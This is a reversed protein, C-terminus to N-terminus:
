PQDVEVRAFSNVGCEVICVLVVDVCKCQSGVVTCVEVGVPCCCIWKSHVWLGLFVGVLRCFGQQWRPDSQTVTRTYGTVVVSVKPIIRSFCQWYSFVISVRRFCIGDLLETQMPVERHCCIGDLLETQLPVERHCCIGVLGRCWVVFISSLSLLWLSFRFGADFPM